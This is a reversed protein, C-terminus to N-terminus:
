EVRFAYTEKKGEKALLKAEGISILYPIQHNYIDDVRSCGKRNAHHAFTQTITSRTLIISGSNAQLRFDRRIHALLIQAEEAIRGRNAIADLSDAAKLCAKVHDIALQVTDARFKLAPSDPIIEPDKPMWSADYCLRAAEFIMTIKAVHTCATNLRSRIAEDLLDCAKIRRDIQKKYDDFLKAAEQTWIFEGRLHELLAFQKVLGNFRELDPQPRPLNRVKDEALYYSFRRQLGIRAANERFQCGLFTTGFIINTSTPKTWREQSELQGEKRNRRFGESLPKGDHLTLFNSSLREGEHPNQWKIITGNADDCILLRYPQKFYADFLSEPSYNHPLLWNPELIAKAIDHPLDITTSKMNGPPGVLITYLNPYLRGNAWPVWVNRALRAAIVPLISGIIYADAGESQTVAYAYYDDIISDSPFPAEQSLPNTSNISNTSNDPWEIVPLEANEVNEVCKTERLHGRIGHGKEDAEKLKYLLRDERWPPICRANFSQLYPLAEGQSLGWGCVLLLAARFLQDDGHEGAASVPVKAMYASIRKELETAQWDDGMDRPRPENDWPRSWSPPWLLKAIEIEQVPAGGMIQYNCGSPHLGAIVTQGGGGRWEGAPQGKADKIKIIKAPYPGIMRFFFTRGRAGHTQLTTEAEPCVRALQDAAEDTDCDIGVLDASAPGLLVGINGELLEAQYKPTQTDVFTTRQWGAHKPKKTGLIVPLLITQKGFREYYVGLPMRGDADSAEVLQVSANRDTVSTDIKSEGPKPEGVALGAKEHQNM